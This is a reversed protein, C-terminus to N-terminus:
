IYPEARWLTLPCKKAKIKILRFIERGILLM